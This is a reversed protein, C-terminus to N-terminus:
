FWEKWAPGKGGGESLNMTEPVKAWIFTVLIVDPLCKGGRLRSFKELSLLEPGEM